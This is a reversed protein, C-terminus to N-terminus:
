SPQHASPGTDEELQWDHEMERSSQKGSQAAPKFKM